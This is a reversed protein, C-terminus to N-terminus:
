NADDKSQPNYLVEFENDSYDFDRMGGRAPTLRIHLRDGPQINMPESIAHLITDCLCYGGSCILGIPCGTCIGGACGGLHSAVGTFNMTEILENGVWVEIDTNGNLHLGPRMASVWWDVVLVARGNADFLFGASRVARVLDDKIIQPKTNTPQESQAQTLEVTETFVSRAISDVEHLHESFAGAGRNATLFFAACLIGIFITGSKIM